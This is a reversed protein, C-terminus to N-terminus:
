QVIDVAGQFHATACGADNVARSVLEQKEDASIDTRLASRLTEAATAFGILSVLLLQEVERADRAADPHAAAPSYSATFIDPKCPYFEGKLGKIIWDGNWAVMTGELTAITLTEGVLAVTPNAPDTNAWRLIEEETAGLIFQIADIVVPKKQYKM